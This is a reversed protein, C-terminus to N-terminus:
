AATPHRKRSLLKMAHEAIHKPVDFEEMVDSPECCGFDIVRNKVYDDLLDMPVLRRATEDRVIADERQVWSRPANAPLLGREAHVLEHCLVANRERQRLQTDLTIRLRGGTLAEIRGGETM